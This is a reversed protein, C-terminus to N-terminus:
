YNFASLRFSHLSILERHGQPLSMGVKDNGLTVAYATPYCATPFYVTPHLCGTRFM